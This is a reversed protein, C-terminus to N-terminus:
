QRDAWNRFKGIGDMIVSIPDDKRCSLAAVPVHEVLRNLSDFLRDLLDADNNVFPCSSFLAAISRAPNIREIRLSDAQQLLFIGKVPFGDHRPFESRQRFEGSFPVMNARFGREMPQVVNIDDSLVTLGDEFAKRALTSKGAGSRGPFLYAGQNHVFGASHLMVGGLKLIRRAMYIRILNEFVMPHSIESEKVVGLQATEQGASEDIHAIFNCGTVTYGLADRVIAPSYQFDPSVLSKTPTPIKDLKVSQCILSDAEISDCSSTSIFQGYNLELGDVQSRSLGVLNVRCSPLQVTRSLSGWTRPTSTM